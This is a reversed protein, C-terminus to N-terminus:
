YWFEPKLDDMGHIPSEMIWELVSAYSDQLPQGIEGRQKWFEDEGLLQRMAHFKELQQQLSGPTLSGFPPYLGTRPTFLCAFIVDDLSGIQLLEQKVTGFGLQPVPKFIASTLPAAYALGAFFLM